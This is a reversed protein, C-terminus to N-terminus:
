FLGVRMKCLLEFQYVLRNPQVLLQQELLFRLLFTLMLGLYYFSKNLGVVLPTRSVKNNPRVFSFFLSECKRLNNTRGLYYSLTEILCLSPDVSYADIVVDSLHYMPRSAKLMSTYSIFLMKNEINVDSCKLLHITQGRQGFLLLSLM